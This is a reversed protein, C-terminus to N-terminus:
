LAQELWGTTFLRDIQTKRTVEEFNPLDGLRRTVTGATGEPRAFLIANKLAEDSLSLLAQSSHTTAIIQLNRSEAFQEFLELLLHVRTPHLGNEIEEMLFLSGEPASFMAALVGMFRLTGDSLSRASIPKKEGDGEVLLLMVDGTGTVEFVIDTVEPACLASLWDLYQQKQEERKCIRHAVASLNEGHSGLDSAALPVYSKMESPRVELFRAAGYQKGLLTAVSIALTEGSDLPGTTRILSPRGLISHTFEFQNPPIWHDRKVLTKQPDNLTEYAVELAPETECRITHTFPAKEPAANPIVYPKLLGEPVGTIQVTSNITFETEGAWCVEEAGGRLAPFVQRGGEWKGTLIEAISLGMGIGQLFRIADFVNSKGSANAGVLLTVPAFPIPAADGAFSKFNTLHLEKLM